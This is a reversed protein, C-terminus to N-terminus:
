AQETTGQADALVTPLWSVMLYLSFAGSAASLWIVLTRIRHARSLLGLVSRRVTPATSQELTLRSSDLDPAFKAAIRAIRADGPRELLLWKLSEAAITAVIIAVTVPVAGGVVFIGRWGLLEIVNPATMAAFFAGFPVFCTLVTMIFFRWRAPAYEGSLTAANVGAMAMGIGTLLRCFAIWTTNIHLLAALTSGGVLLMALVLMPKRGIRDGLPAFFAGGIAMGFLSASLATSFASAPIEFEAAISPVALALAQLDYGDCFLVLACAIYIRIQLGNIRPRDILADVSGAAHPQVGSASPTAAIAM